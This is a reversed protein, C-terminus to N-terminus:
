DQPSIRPPPPVAHEPEPLPGADICVLPAGLGKAADFIKEARFLIRDIDAGPGFGKAGADARLGVLQEDNSSFVHRLERRGTQSLTTVDLSPSVADIQVGAFGNTRALRAADRLDPSLASALIGIPWPM